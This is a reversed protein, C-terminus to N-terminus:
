TTSIARLVPGNLCVSISFLKFLLIVTALSLERMKWVAHSDQDSTIVAVGPFGRFFVVVVTRPQVM